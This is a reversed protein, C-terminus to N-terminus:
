GWAALMVGLDGGDVSGNGDLDATGGATGFASLLMGLDAGDVSGSGDLDGAIGVPSVAAFADVEASQGSGMPVRVRVFRARSLGAHAVDIGVGGGSTGYADLLDEYSSWLLSDLTLAPDLPSTFDTPVLGPAVAYPTVDRWGLTPAFGDAEAGAVVSWRVGDESLAIEGGEAFLGSPMGAPYQADGFFSNGFVILDIGFPHRPDNILDHDFAVVLEGGAGISVLENAMFAPQFPTVAAPAFSGGTTRTPAGLATAPSQYGAAANTGATYSVATAAYPSDAMATHAITCAGFACVRVGTRVIARALRLCESILISM